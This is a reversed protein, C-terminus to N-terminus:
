SRGRGAAAHYADEFARSVAGLSFLETARARGATGLAAREAPSEALRALRDTFAALDGVPVLHGTVGDDVVDPVGGTSTAVVPLGSAMGEALTLGFGEYESASCLIDCSAIATPLDDVFGTLHVADAIGCGTAVAALADHDGSGIVLLEADIGRERLAAVAEVVLDFRKLPAMRGVAIVAVSDPRLGLQARTATRVAAEVPAFAATDIGLPFRSISSRPVRSRAVLEDEVQASHCIATVGFRRVLAGEMWDTSDAHRGSGPADHVEIVFPTRPSTARALLGLWAVGSHLHVVDPRISRVQWAMRVAITVRDRLRFRSGGFRGVHVVAPVDSLDDWDPRMTVVHLQVRNPDLGEALRRVVMQVGGGPSLRGMLNAVVLPREGGSRTVVRDDPGPRASLAHSASAYCRARAM